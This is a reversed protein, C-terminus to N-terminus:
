RSQADTPHLERWKQVNDTRVWVLGGEGDDVRQMVDPHRFDVYGDVWGGGDRANKRRKREQETMFTKLAEYSATADRQLVEASTSAVEDGSLLRFLPDEELTRDILEETLGVKMDQLFDSLDVDVGAAAKLAVKGTM